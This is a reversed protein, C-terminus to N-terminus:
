RAPSSPAGAVREIFRRMPEIRQWNCFDEIFAGDDDGSARKANPSLAALNAEIADTALAVM